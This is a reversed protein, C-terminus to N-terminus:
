SRGVEAEWTSPSCAHAMVSLGSSVELTPETSEDWQIAEKGQVSNVM